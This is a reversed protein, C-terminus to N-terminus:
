LICWSQFMSWNGKGKGKGKGNQKGSGDDTPTNVPSGSGWATEDGLVTVEGSTNSVINFAETHVLTVFCGITGSSFLDAVPIEICQDNDWTGNQIGILIDALDSDNGYPFHGNKPGGGAMPIDAFQGAFIHSTGIYWDAIVNTIEIVLKSSDPSLGFNVEGIISDQGAVLDKTGLLSGIQCVNGRAHIAYTDSNIEQTTNNLAVKTTPQIIEEKVCSTFLMAIGMLCLFTLNKM